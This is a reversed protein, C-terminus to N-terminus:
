LGLILSVISFGQLMLKETLLLGRNWFQSYASWVRSNQILQSWYVVYVILLPIKSWMYPFNVISFDFDDNKGHLQISLKSVDTLLKSDMGRFIVKHLTKNFNASHNQLLRFYLLRVSLRVSLRWVSSPSRAILFTGKLKRSLHDLFSFFICYDTIL